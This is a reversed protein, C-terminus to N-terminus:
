ILNMIVNLAALTVRRVIGYLPQGISLFYNRFKKSRWERLQKSTSMVDMSSWRWFRLSLSAGQISRMRCEMCQFAWVSLSDLSFPFLFFFFSLCTLTTSHSVYTLNERCDPAENQKQMFGRIILSGLSPAPVAWKCINCFTTSRSRKPLCALALIIQLLSWQVVSKGVVWTMRFLFGASM